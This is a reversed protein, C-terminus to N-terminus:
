RFDEPSNPTPVFFGIKDLQFTWPEYTDTSFIEVKQGNSLIFIPDIKLIQDQFAIDVIKTTSLYNLREKSEKDFCGLIMKKNEIIRWSSLTNFNWGMGHMHFLTGDWNVELIELPLYKSIELIMKEIM